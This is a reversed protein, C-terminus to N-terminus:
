DMGQEKALTWVVKGEKPNLRKLSPEPWVLKGRLDSRELMSAERKRGVYHFPRDDGQFDLRTCEVYVAPENKLSGYIACELAGAMAAASSFRGNPNRWDFRPVNVVLTVRGKHPSKRKWRELERITEDFIQDESVFISCISSKSFLPLLQARLQVCTQMMPLVKRFQFKDRELSGKGLVLEGTELILEPPLKTLPSQQSNLTRRHYALKLTLQNIMEPMESPDCQELLQKFTQAVHEKSATASTYPEAVRDTITKRALVIVQTVQHPTIHCSAICHHSPAAFTQESVSQHHTKLTTHLHLPSGLSPVNRDRPSPTV